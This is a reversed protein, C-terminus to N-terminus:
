RNCVPESTLASSNVHWFTVVHFQQQLRCCFREEPKRHGRCLQLRSPWQLFVVPMARGAAPSCEAAEAMCHTSHPLLFSVAAAERRSPQGAAASRAATEVARHEGAGLPFNPLTDPFVFNGAQQRSILRQLRHLKRWLPPPAMQQRLARFTCHWRCARQSAWQWDHGM